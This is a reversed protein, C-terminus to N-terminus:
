RPTFARGARFRSTATIASPTPVASNSFTDAAFGDLALRDGEAFNLDLIKDTDAGDVIDSIDIKFIDAGLGGFLANDGAGGDLADDFKGGRLSDDGDLGQM